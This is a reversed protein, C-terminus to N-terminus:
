LHTPPRLLDLSTLSGVVAASSCTLIQFWMLPPVHCTFLPSPSSSVLILTSHTLIPYNISGVFLWKGRHQKQELTVVYQISRCGLFFFFGECHVTLRWVNGKHDCKHQLCSVFVVPIRCRFVNDCKLLSKNGINLALFLVEGGVWLCPWYTGSTVKIM